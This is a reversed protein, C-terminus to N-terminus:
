PTDPPEAAAARLGAQSRFGKAILWLALLLQSVAVPALMPFVVDHGFLPMGVATVMLVAAILGFGALARPILVCRYLVAYFVFIAAGDTIRAMFHAWNRASAVIVRVAQLQEREVASAKTYAESLSVMSMVASNEVVAVALIVAALAVLWLALRQTRQYVSTFVTVAIGLWIGETVLGLVAALGIQRSHPAANVLFGPAGFLPAELVGNVIASGVMQMVILVGIIRGVRSAAEM